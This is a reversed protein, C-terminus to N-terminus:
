ELGFKSGLAPLTKNAIEALKAAAPLGAFVGTLMQIARKAMKKMGGDGPNNAAQNLNEIEELATEKDDEKLNSESAIAEKLQTLLEEIGLKEAESSDLSQTTVQNKIGTVMQGNNNSINGKISVSNTESM